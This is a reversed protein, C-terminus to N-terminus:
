GWKRPFTRNFSLGGEYNPRWPRPTIIYGVSYANPNIISLKGSATIYNNVSALASQDLQDSVIISASCGVNLIDQITLTNFLSETELLGGKSYVDESNHVEAKCTKIFNLVDAFSEINQKPEIYLKNLMNFNTIVAKAQFIGEKYSISGKSTTDVSSYIIGKNYLISKTIDGVCFIDETPNDPIVAAKAALIGDKYSISARSINNSVERLRVLSEIYDKLVGAVGTTDEKPNFLGIEAVGQSSLSSYISATNNISSGTIDALSNLNDEDVAKISGKSEINSSKRIFIKNFMQATTIEAKSDVTGPFRINAKCQTLFTEALIAVGVMDHQDYRKIVAKSFIKIEDAYGDWNPDVYTVVIKAGAGSEKASMEIYGQSKIAISFQYKEQAIKALIFDKVNLIIFRDDSVVSDTLVSSSINLEQEWNIYSEYWDNDCDHITYNGETGVTKQIVLYIDRLTFSSLTLINSVDFSLYTIYEGDYNVGTTLTQLGGYNLLPKSERTFADKEVGLVMDYIPPQVVKMLIDMYNTDNINTTCSLYNLNPIYAKSPADVVPPSIVGKNLLNFPNNLYGKSLVELQTEIYAKSVGNFSKLIFAKSVGNFSKLIFAKTLVEANTKLFGSSSTDIFSNTYSKALMNFRADLINAYSQAESTLSIFIKSLESNLGEGSPVSYSLDLDNISNIIAKSNINIM